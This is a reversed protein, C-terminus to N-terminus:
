AGGLTYVGPLTWGPMPMVRDTAGTAVILADFPEAGAENGHLLHVRRDYVNWALTEPRHDIRAGLADFATHLALAKGVEFGYLAAPPRTFGDPQRRYIQGGSRAAEDIVIPRLGAAVLREAARIGAPGAGVIVVSPDAM